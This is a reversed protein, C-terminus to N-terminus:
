LKAASDAEMAAMAAEAVVMAEELEEPSFEPMSDSSPATATAPVTASAAVTSAVIASDSAITPDFFSRDVGLVEVQVPAFPVPYPLPPAPSSATATASGPATAPVTASAAVTSALIASDSAITPDFFSRDVGLVEVQV